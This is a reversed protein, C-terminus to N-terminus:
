RAAAFEFEVEAVTEKSGAEVLRTMRLTKQNERGWDSHVAIRFTSDAKCSIKVAYTGPVARRVMYEAVGEGVTLRGGTQSVGHSLPEGTAEV